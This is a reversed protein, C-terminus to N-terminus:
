PAERELTGGDATIRYRVDALRQAQAADHTTMLIATGNQAKERILNEVAGVAGADLASTPEDLLLVPPHNMLIRVLALRQKEGTSLRPVDQDFLDAALGLRTAMVRAEDIHDAPFHDKIRDAWWGAEAALYAVHRRWDPAVFTARERGRYAVTGGAPDLDALARLLLSKGAGSPGTLTTIRGGELAVDYPGRGTRTVLATATLVPADHPKSNPSTMPGIM